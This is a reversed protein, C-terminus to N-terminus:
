TGHTRLPDDSKSVPLREAAIEVPQHAPDPDAAVDVGLGVEDLLRLHQVAGGIEEDLHEAWGAAVAAKRYSDGRQRVSHRDLDLGDALHTRGERLPM